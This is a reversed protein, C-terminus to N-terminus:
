AGLMLKVHEECQQLGGEGQMWTIKGDANADFGPILQDALSTMQSVLASADAASTSAIIKQAIAIIQDARTATNRASIAIHQAHMKMQPTAGDAGSALEIHVAVLLAAKKAGYKLGPGMAVLSPDLANIVHGAHTKMYDLNAPQRGALAAHTAAIKSEDIAAALLGIGGPTDGFANAVHGIHMGAPTAPVALVARVATVPPIYTGPLPAGVVAVLVSDFVKRSPLDTSLLFSKRGFDSESIGSRQFIDSIQADLRERLAAQAQPTTNRPLALQLNASDHATNIALQLRALSAIEDRSLMASRAPAPTQAQATVAIAFTLVFAKM